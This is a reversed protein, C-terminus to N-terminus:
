NAEKPSSFGIKPLFLRNQPPFASFGIKIM